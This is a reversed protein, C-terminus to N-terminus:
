RPRSGGPGGGRVEPPFRLAAGEVKDGGPRGEVFYFLDAGVRFFFGNDGKAAAVKKKLYAIGLQDAAAQLAFKQVVAGGDGAGVGDGDGSRGLGQHVGDVADGDDDGLLLFAGDLADNARSFDGHGGLGDGALGAVDAGDVPSPPPRVM